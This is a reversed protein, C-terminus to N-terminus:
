VCVCVSMLLSYERSSKSRAHFYRNNSKVQSSKFINIVQSSFISSKVQSTFVESKGMDTPHRHCKEIFQNTELFYKNINEHLSDILPLHLIEFSQDLIIKTLSLNISHPIQLKNSIEPTCADCLSGLYLFDNIITTM